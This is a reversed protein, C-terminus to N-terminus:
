ICDQYLDGDPLPKTVIDMPLIPNVNLHEMLEHTYANYTKKNVIRAWSLHNGPDKIFNRRKDYQIHFKYPM